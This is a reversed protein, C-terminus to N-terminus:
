PWVTFDRLYTRVMAGPMQRLADQLELLHSRGLELAHEQSQQQTGIPYDLYPTRHQEIHAGLM